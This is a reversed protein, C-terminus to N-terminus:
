NHIIYGSATVGTTAYVDLVPQRSQEVSNSLHCPKGSPPVVVEAVPEIVPDGAEEKHHHSDNHTVLLVHPLRNDAPTVADPCTVQLWGGAVVQKKHGIREWDSQNHQIMTLVIIQEKVRTEKM